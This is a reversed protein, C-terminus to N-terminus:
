YMVKEFRLGLVFAIGSRGHEEEADNAMIPWICKSSAYEKLQPPGGLFARSVFLWRVKDNTIV